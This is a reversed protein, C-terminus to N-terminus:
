GYMNMLCRKDDLDGSSTPITRYRPNFSADFLHFLFLDTRVVALLFIMRLERKGRKERREERGGDMLIVVGCWHGSSM